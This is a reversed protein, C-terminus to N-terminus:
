LKIEKKKTGDPNAVEVVFREKQEEFWITIHGRVKSEHGILELSLRVGNCRLHCRAWDGIPWDPDLNIDMIKIETM